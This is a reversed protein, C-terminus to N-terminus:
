NSKEACPRAFPETTHLMADDVRAIAAAVTGPRSGTPPELKNKPGLGGLPFARCKNKQGSLQLPWLERGVAHTGMGVSAGNDGEERAAKTVYATVKGWAKRDRAGNGYGSAKSRGCVGKGIACSGVGVQNEKCDRQCAHKGMGVSAGEGGEERAAKTVHATVTGRAKQGEWGEGDGSLGVSGGSAGDGGEERAAKTVCATVTGWAKRDYSDPCASLVGLQLWLSRKCLIGKNGWTQLSKGKM